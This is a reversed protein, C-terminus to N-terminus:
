IDADADWFGVSVYNLKYSATVGPRDPLDFCFNAQQIGRGMVALCGGDSQQSHLGLLALAAAVGRRDERGTLGFPLKAAFVFGKRRYAKNQIKGDEVTVEVGDQLFVVTQPESFGGSRSDRKGPTRSIVSARKELDGPSAGLRPGGVMQDLDPGQRAKPRGDAGIPESVGVGTLQGKADFLFDLAYADPSQPRAALYTTSRLAYSGDTAPEEAYFEIGAGRFAGEIQAVKSNRDLGFPAPGDALELTKRFVKGNYTTVTIAGTRYRCYGMEDPCRGTAREKVTKATSGLAPGGFRADADMGKPVSIPLGSLVSAPTAAEVRAPSGAELGLALIAAVIAAVGVQDASACRMRRGLSGSVDCNGLTRECSNYM